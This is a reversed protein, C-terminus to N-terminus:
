RRVQRAEGIPRKARPRLLADAVLLMLIYAIVEAM